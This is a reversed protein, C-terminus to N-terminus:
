AGSRRWRRGSRPTSGPSATPDKAIAGVIMQWMAMMMGGAIGVIAGVKMVTLADIRGRERPLEAFRHTHAAHAEM